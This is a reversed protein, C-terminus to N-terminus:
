KARKGSETNPGPKTPGHQQSLACARWAKPSPNGNRSKRNGSPNVTGGHSVNGTAGRYHRVAPNGMTRNSAKAKRGHDKGCSIFNLHQHVYAGDEGPKVVAEVWRKVYPKHGTRHGVVTSVTPGGLAWLGKAGHPHSGWPPSADEMEESSM